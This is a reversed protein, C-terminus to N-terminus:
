TAIAVMELSGVIGASGGGETAPSLPGYPEPGRHLVAPPARIAGLSPTGSSSGSRSSCASVSARSSSARWGIVREIPGLRDRAVFWTSLLFTAYWFVFFGVGGSLSDATRLDAV